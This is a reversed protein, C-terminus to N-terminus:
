KKKKKPDDEPYGEAMDELELSKNGFLVDEDDTFGEMAESDDKIHSPAAKGQFDSASTIGAATSKTARMKEHLWVIFTIPHYTWVIKDAPLGAADAVDDTWWLV